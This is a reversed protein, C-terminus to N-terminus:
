AGPREAAVGDVSSENATSTNVMSLTALSPEVLAADGLVV